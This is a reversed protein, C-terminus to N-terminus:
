THCPRRRTAARRYLYLEAAKAALKVGAWGVLAYAMNDLAPYKRILAIFFSAAVRLLVIGM